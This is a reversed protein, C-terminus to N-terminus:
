GGERILSRIDKLLEDVEFRTGVYQVRLDGGSDVVSTLFTHDIAGGTKGGYVVGYGTAVARIAEPPGTVFSWGPVLAGHLDAYQRLVEPTDHAPDVTVSVFVVRSGFDTGMRKRVTSLRATLLPCADACTAFMFTVVVVKGRLERLSLQRGDQSILEFGPASGIVPLDSGRGAASATLLALALAMLTAAARVM